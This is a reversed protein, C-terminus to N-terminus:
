FLPHIPKDFWMRTRDKGYTGILKWKGDERVLVHDQNSWNDITVVGKKPDHVGMLLGTCRFIVTNKNESRNVGSMNVLAMVHQTAMTEFTAFIRKWIKEVAKKDHGGNSYRDSYLEMLAPLNRTEIATEAAHFFAMVQQFRQEGLQQKAAPDIQMAYQDSLASEAGSAVGAFLCLGLWAAITNQLVSRAMAPLNKIQVPSNVQVSNIQVFM